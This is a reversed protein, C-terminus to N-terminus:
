ELPRIWINRYRVRDGHDQLLLPQKNPHPSYEADARWATAGKIEFHDQVLVGNHLVTVTAPKICREGDFTPAHFIIDYTQWENPKRCANVLPPNQGYVSGAYGIAYTQNEYNDLVQIEYRNMLFVGSNGRSQSQKDSMYPAAWEVHLQCSGFSEKTQISGAKPVMEMAGNEVKWKAPGGKKSSVWMDLNSGDFLVIADSPADAATPGPTVVPLKVVTEDWGIVTATMSVIIFLLTKKMIVERDSLKNKIIKIVKVANYLIQNIRYIFDRVSKVSTM